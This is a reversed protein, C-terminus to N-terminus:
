RQNRLAKTRMDIPPVEDPDIRVDLLVPSAGRAIGAWDLAGLDDATRIVHGTAGMAEALLAFNTIPLDTGIQEAGTLKQGHKVMGLSSDNLVVFVIPLKEQVAVTIEQGSMLMSGDGTICVVTQGPIALATGVASGIAWGMSAFEMCVRFVSDRAEGRNVLRRDYPHLYHTAWAFSAGTDALYRTGPPLLRPLDRMLRQPKIPVADSEYQHPENLKFPLEKALRQLGTPASDGSVSADDIKAARNESEFRGLLREFITSLRGRVHLKAMPSRNFRSETSDIHVLRGNLLLEASWSETAWESLSAGIALVTDVEPDILVERASAHGAFGVVGRFLPHYANILGKGYATALVRADLRSALALISGIAEGADGGILFVPKRAEELFQYCRSVADDDVVSPREILRALNFSPQSVPSPQGFVDLPISLHVPGSPSQFAAMIASVLKIELQSSHSVLSNYRTCGEFLAVTNVGTCSSEQFAGRGFSSLSTQATIVLMPIHNEYASAVGTVLNTAGPGTTACCVGLRGTNRAYGDAMFAAGTEHRAVVSRPGGDRESRALANYLPEIAGGPIGFVYEVGLQRLYAMVLDGLDFVPAVGGGAAAKVGSLGQQM